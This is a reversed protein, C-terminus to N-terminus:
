GDIADFWRRVLAAAEADQLPPPASVNGPEGRKLRALATAPDGQPVRADSRWPGEGCAIIPVDHIMYEVLKSPPVHMKRSAVFALADAAAVLAGSADLSMVGHLSIREAASSQMVREREEDTLRGVLHLVLSSNERLGAEFPRLLDGIDADPDSLSISGAHVVNLAGSDLSAPAPRDPSVFHPLVRVNRAGFRRAEAAVVDDVATVLDARSMLRRAIMREGIRRHPRLRERRHPSQLWLDRLDAMWRAGTFEAIRAGAVHISEPPSTSIVWDPTWGSALVVDAARQCWRIDPDPWLLWDRALSRPSFHPRSTSLAPDRNPHSVAWGPEQVHLSPACIRVDAGTARLARALLFPRKAGGSVAPPYHRTLILIATM